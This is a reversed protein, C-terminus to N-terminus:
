FDSSRPEDWAPNPKHHNIVVVEGKRGKRQKVDVAYGATRCTLLHYTLTTKANMKGAGGDRYTGERSPPHSATSSSTSPRSDAQVVIPRDAYAMIRNTCPSLELHGNSSLPQLTPQSNVSKTWSALYPSSLIQPPNLNLSLEIIYFASSSSLPDDLSSFSLYSPYKYSEAFTSYM